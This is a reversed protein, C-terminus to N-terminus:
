PFTKYYGVIALLLTPSRSGLPGMAMSGSARMRGCRELQRVQEHNGSQTKSVSMHIEQHGLRAGDIVYHNM